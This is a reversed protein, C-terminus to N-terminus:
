SSDSAQETRLWAVIILVGALLFPAGSILTAFLKNHGAEVLALISLGIGALTLIVGGIKERRWAIIAGIAAMLNLSGLVFGVLSFEFIERSVEV